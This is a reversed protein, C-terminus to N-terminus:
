MIIFRYIWLIEASGRIGRYLPSPCSSPLLPSPSQFIARAPRPGWRGCQLWAHCFNALHIYWYPLIVHCYYGSLLRFLQGIDTHLLRGLFSFYLLNTKQQVQVIKIESVSNVFNGPSGSLIPVCRLKSGWADWNRRIGGHLGWLKM